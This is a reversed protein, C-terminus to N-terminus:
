PKSLRRRLACREMWRSAGNVRAKMQARRAALLQLERQPTGDLMRREIRKYRIGFDIWKELGPQAIGLSPLAVLVRRSNGTQGDFGGIRAQPKKTTISCTRSLQRKGFSRQLRRVSAETLDGVTYVAPLTSRVKGPAHKRLLYMLEDRSRQDPLSARFVQAHKHDFPAVIAHVSSRNILAVWFRGDWLKWVKRLVPRRRDHSPNRRSCGFKCEPLSQGTVYPQRSLHWQVPRNPQLVATAPSFHVGCLNFAKPGLQTKSQMDGLQPFLRGVSSPLSSSFAGLPEPTVMSILRKVLLVAIHRYHERRKQWRAQFKQGTRFRSLQFSPLQVVLTGATSDFKVLTRKLLRDVECEAHAAQKSLRNAMALMAPKQLVVPLTHNIYLHRVANRMTLTRDHNTADEFWPINNAECTAVLRDKGFNLLPRYLMIGGDEIELPDVHFSRKQSPNQSDSHAKSPTNDKIAARVREASMDFHGTSGAVTTAQLHFTTLDAASCGTANPSHVFAHDDVFGSQYAGHIDQSEPIDTVARMGQLGQSRHGSLLRMLLTEYQDDQHHALLLSTIRARACHSAITRYRLRRALTEFNTLYKPHAVGAAELTDNWEISLQQAQLGFRERVVQGVKLAEQNSSQRLRHDVTICHFASVPNDAIRLESYQRRAAWCLYALAMSDSGGSIALGVPRSRGLEAAIGPFRPPCTARLANVFEDVAIPKATCHLVRSAPNM